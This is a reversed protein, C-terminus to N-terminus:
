PGAWSSHLRLDARYPGHDHAHSEHISPLSLVSRGDRLRERFGLMSQVQEPGVTRSREGDSRWGGRSHGNGAARRRVGEQVDGLRPEPALTGEEPRWAGNGGSLGARM